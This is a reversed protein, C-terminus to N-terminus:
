PTTKASEAPKASQDDVRRKKDGKDKKGVEPSAESTQLSEKTKRKAPTTKVGANILHSAALWLKCANQAKSILVKVEVKGLGVLKDKSVEWADKAADKAADKKYVMVLHSSTFVAALAAMIKEHEEAKLAEMTEPIRIEDLDDYGPCMRNLITDFAAKAADLAAYVNNSRSTFQSGVNGIIQLMMGAQKHAVGTKVTAQALRNVEKEMSETATVSTLALARLAKAEDSSLGKDSDPSYTTLHKAVKHIPIMAKIAELFDNYIEEETFTYHEAGKMLNLAGEFMAHEAKRQDLITMKPQVPKNDPAQQDEVLTDKDKRTTMPTDDEKSSDNEADVGMGTVPEPVEQGVAMTAEVLVAPSIPSATQENLAPDSSM